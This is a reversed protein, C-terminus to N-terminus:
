LMINSRNNLDGYSKVTSQEMFYSYVRNNHLLKNSPPQQVKPSKLIDMLREEAEPYILGGGGKERQTKQKIQPLGVGPSKNRNRSGM